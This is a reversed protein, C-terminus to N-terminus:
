CGATYERVCGHRRGRCRPARGVRPDPTLSLRVYNWEENLFLVSFVLAWISFTNYIATINAMSTLPLAIFWSVAPITIGLTLLLVIVATTSMFESSSRAPSLGWMSRVRDVQKQVDRRLLGLYHSMPRGTLVRLVVLQLPLLLLFSSHTVYLLLLPKEFHLSYQVHQTSETQVTYALLISTFAVLTKPGGPLRGIM